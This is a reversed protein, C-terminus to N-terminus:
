NKKEIHSTSSKSIGQPAGPNRPICNSSWQCVRETIGPIERVRAAAESIRAVLDKRSSCCNKLLSSDLVLTHNSVMVNLLSEKCAQVAYLEEDVLMM